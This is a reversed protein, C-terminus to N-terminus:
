RKKSRKSSRCVSEECDDMEYMNRKGRSARRAAENAEKQAARESMIEGLARDYRALFLDWSPNGNDTMKNSFDMILLQHINRTYFASTFSFHIPRHEVVFWLCPSYSTTKYRSNRAHWCPVSMKIRRHSTSTKWNVNGFVSQIECLVHICEQFQICTIPTTDTTWSFNVDQPLPDVLAPNQNSVSQIHYSFDSSLQRPKNNLAFFSFFRQCRNFFLCRVPNSMMIVLSKVIRLRAYCHYVMHNKCESNVSEWEHFLTVSELLGVGGRPFTPNNKTTISM